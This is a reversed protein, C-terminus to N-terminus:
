PPSPECWIAPALGRLSNGVMLRVEPLDAAMLVAERCDGAALMAARLVGPLLGCTLPPTCLGDGADFFLTTITGDCVEGRENLFLAEDLDPPLAARAADYAARRSSKVLLWPDASSLRAKALGLRWLDRPPPAPEATVAVRRGADRTLRVRREDPFALAALAAGADEGAGWGLARVSAELRAVHLDARLCGQEPAYRLTEILHLGPADAGDTLRPDPQGCVPSEM